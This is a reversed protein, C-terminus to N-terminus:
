HSKSNKTFLQEVARLYEFIGILHDEKKPFHDHRDFCLVCKGRIYLRNEKDSFRVQSLKLKPKCEDNNVLNEYLNRVVRNIAPNNLQVVEGTRDTKLQILANPIQFKM